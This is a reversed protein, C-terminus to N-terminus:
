KNRKFLLTMVLAFWKLKYLRAKQEALAIKRELEAIRVKLEMNKKMLPVVHNEAIYDSVFSILGITKITNQGKSVAQKNRAM